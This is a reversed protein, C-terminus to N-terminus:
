GILSNENGGDRSSFNGWRGRLWSGVPLFTASENMAVQSKANDLLRKAEKQVATIKNEDGATLKRAIREALYGEFALVFAQPWLSPNSGYAPSNSVYSFYITQLDTFLYAAEDIFATLPTRFYPDQCVAMTRVWDAPKEFACAYGFNPTITTDYTLQSTRKAFYWLGKELMGDVAGSGDGWVDDLLYRAEFNDTLAALRANGCIRLAGNYLSLQTTPSIPTPVSTM